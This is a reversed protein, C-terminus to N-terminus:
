LSQLVIRELEADTLEVPNYRMSGARSGASIGAVDAATVGFARLPEVGLSKRLDDLEEAAREPTPEGRRVLLSAVETARELARSGPARRALAEMNVVFTAPLLCGCAAGHPVSCRGGLPAVLGHVAGLGANALAIGGWLSALAMAESSAEDARGEGLARLAGVALRMGPVVLADTTPQAGRSLYAEILHTLADLGASAAVSRPAAGTLSPDVIAVRPTLHESRISRKVALEPVRIVSNRTVESGSGATTPVAVIPLAPRAISRGGGVEEVFDIASGDNTALGAVAKGADLVSGGGVAIVVDFRGERCLRAGEDILATDPERPVIWRSWSAGREELAGTMAALMGSREISAQGTVVLARRGLKAAIEPAKRAEGRGFLIEPATRFAFSAPCASAGM